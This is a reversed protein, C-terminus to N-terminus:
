KHPKDPDTDLLQKKETGSMQAVIEPYLLRACEPCVTHTFDAATRAHIYSEVERWQGSEERIKKCRSCIPLYGSLVKALTEALQAELRKQEHMATKLETLDTLTAVINATGPIRSFTLRVDRADGAAPNFHIDVWEPANGAEKKTNHYYRRVKERYTEAIFDFLAKKHQVRDSSFGTLDSFRTNCLSIIANEKLIATATGTNQFLTEYWLKNELANRRAKELGEALLVGVIGVAFFIVIRLADNFASEKFGFLHDSAVLMASLLLVVALGRRKWWTVALVIPLYYFHTFFTGTGLVHHYYYTLGGALMMLLAMIAYKLGSPMEVLSLIM